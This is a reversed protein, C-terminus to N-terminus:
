LSWIRDLFSLIRQNVVVPLCACHNVAHCRTCMSLQWCVDYIRAGVSCALHGGRVLTASYTFLSLKRASLKRTHTVTTNCLHTLIHAYVFAVILAFANFSVFPSLIFFVVFTCWQFAVLGVNSGVVVRKTDFVCAGKTRTLFENLYLHHMITQSM